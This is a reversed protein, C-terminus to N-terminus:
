LEHGHFMCTHIFINQTFLLSDTVLSSFLWFFDLPFILRWCYVTTKFYTLTKISDIMDIFTWFLIDFVYWWLFLWFMKYSINSLNLAYVSMHDSWLYYSFHQFNSKSNIAYIRGNLMDYNVLNSFGLKQWTIM